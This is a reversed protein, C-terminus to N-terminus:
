PHEYTDRFINCFDICDSNTRIKRKKRPDAANKGERMLKLPGTSTSQEPKSSPRHHEIPKMACDTPNFNADALLAASNDLKPTM